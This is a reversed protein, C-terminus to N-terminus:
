QGRAIYVKESQQSADEEKDGEMGKAHRESISKVLRGIDDYQTHLQDSEIQGVLFAMGQVATDLRYVFQKMEVIYKAQPDITMSSPLAPHKIYIISNKISIDYLNIYLISYSVIIFFRDGPM